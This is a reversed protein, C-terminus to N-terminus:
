QLPVTSTVLSLNFLYAIPQCFVPAAVRLFWAPLGDLGMATPDFPAIQPQIFDFIAASPWRPIVATRLWQTLQAKKDVIHGSSRKM